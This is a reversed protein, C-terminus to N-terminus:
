TNRWALFYVTPASTHRRTHGPVHSISRPRQSPFSMFDMIVSILDCPTFGSFTKWKRDLEMRRERLEMWGDRRDVETQAESRIQVPSTLLWLREWEKPQRTNTQTHRRASSLLTHSPNKVHDTMKTKRMLLEKIHM